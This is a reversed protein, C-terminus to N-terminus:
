KSKTNNHANGVSPPMAMQQQSDSPAAVDGDSIFTKKRGASECLAANGEGAGRAETLWAPLAQPGLFYQLLDHKFYRPHAIVHGKRPDRRCVKIRGANIESRFDHENLGTWEMMEQGDLTLPLSHWRELTKADMLAPLQMELRKMSRHLEDLKQDTPTLM